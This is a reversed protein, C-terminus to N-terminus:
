FRLVELDGSIFSPNDIGNREIIDSENDPAEYLDYTLVISPLNKGVTINDVTALDGRPIAAIIASKFNSLQKFLEDDIDLALEAEILDLIRNRTELAEELSSFEKAIANECLRILALQRILSEIADANAKEQLRTPTEGEVESAESSFDALGFLADLKDDRGSTVDVTSNDPTESPLDRVLQIITDVEAALSAPNSALSVVNSDFSDLGKSLEARKEDDGSVGDTKLRTTKTFDKLAAQASLRAFGPLAALSYGLQFANQVQAVVTVAKNLLDSVTDLIGVPFSPKGAEIFELSFHVIRGAGTAESFSYAGPQVEKLGLYPHVLFGSSGDEMAAILADRFFFYNDGLLHGEIKFVKTKRGLDEAFGSNKDPPEHQIAKRGGSLEHSEVYFGIGRFSAPLLRAKWLDNLSAV